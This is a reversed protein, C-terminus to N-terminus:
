SLYEVATDWSPPDFLGGSALGLKPKLRNLQGDLVSISWSALYSKDKYTTM